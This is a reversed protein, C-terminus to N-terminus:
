FCNNQSIQVWQADTYANSRSAYFPHLGNLVGPHSAAYTNPNAHFAPLLLNAEGIAQAGDYLVVKMADWEYPVGTIQLSTANFFESSTAGSGPAYNRAAAVASTNISTLAPSIVQQSRSEIYFTVPTQDLEAVGTSRNVKWRFFRVALNSNTDFNTDLTTIRLRVKDEQIVGGASYVQVRGGLRAQTSDFGNCVAYTSNLSGNGIGTGAGPINTNTSKSGCGSMVFLAAAVAFLTLPLKMHSKM